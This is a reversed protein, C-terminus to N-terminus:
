KLTGLYSFLDSVQRDSLGDILGEPMLSRKSVTHEKVEAKPIAREDAGIQRLVLMDKNESALFGSLLTGDNLSVDHRYYGSELQANPTLINRLLSETGMAGAGSLDPGIATGQGQAQHCTMCTAQFLQKGAAADGPNAALARIREFKASLAKAADPTLLEPFDSTWEVAAGGVPHPGPVEGNVQLVLGPMAAGAPLRTRYGALIEAPTRAVGWIRYELFSGATGGPQNARGIDLSRMAATFAGASVGAPEGDLYLSVKGADDRTVACHTWKGAEMPRDAIVVDGAGSYLRLRADYFNIDPGGGRTGLLGDRNDIGPEFKVWSEVTFPGDLTFGGDLVADPKGPFRLAAMLIGDVSQLVKQFDPHDRGLVAALKEVASSDFGVFGGEAVAKAFAAASEKNSVMGNVAFQRMAGPLSPWRKAVEPLAAPGGSAAYGLLAERAVGADAHDLLPLCMAPDTAQIENLTRLLVALEAPSGEKSARARLLPGLEKLRFRRALGLALPLKEPSEHVMAETTRGVAERLAENSAAVPDLKLLSRLLGERVSPRELQKGFAKAVAAQSLQSGLLAIEDGDLPRTISPLLKVLAVAGDQPPSALACIRRAEESDMARNAFATWTALPHAELARRVLYRLFSAEYAERSDGEIPAPALSAIASVMATTPEKHYLLANALACSVGFDSGAEKAQFVMRLFLNGGLLRADAAAEIAERRLDVNKDGALRLLLDRNLARMERVAWLAGLRKPLPQSEDSAIEGLLPVMDPEARDGIEEWVMRAVRTNPAGLRDLLEAGTLKTLDESAVPQHGKPKVRWIRGRTKDREPHNRPVENHSIIKNYWDAIYLCGDPGFQISVPRFWEDKSVLFDEQKKYSRRGKDDMTLTVIQIRNTIPNAIYFVREGPWKAAFASDADDALVLGSLGTGGMPQGPTSAPVQPAYPKLKEPSGTPYHGGDIFESVPHGIDNAEQLYERGDKAIAFGWINNPGATLLGFDWGDLKARALKCQNFVVEKEGSAFDSGDPRVVKSYNFLGQALYFWGGPTREFQHPFLHSDQIGFGKLVVEYDEARGDKDLDMYRRIETGHQVLVSGKWPLIGLPIALKDVFVRPTQPGAKWPEDFILVKDKGGRAYLAEAAAQNENADVPYELATMTWMRGAHDWAMTIPKGVGEKESAVLEVDFGDPVKFSAMESEPSRASADEWSPIGPTAPLEEITIEKFQALLKGGGHTQLGILGEQPIAAEAETYDLAPVGNIWSRIRRGECRIVYDNWDWDKAAAKIAGADVPEGIVKNRRSEDYMKGWWDVGADVQYGSMESNGAVRISRIQVGSNMFGEGKTLRVKLRLEFNAYRKKTALFTNYPVQEELSGGTIMGDQVKWWKEEGGRVEWGDLSKGDFLSVPPAPLPKNSYDGWPVIEGKAARDLHYQLAEPTWGPNEKEQGALLAKADPTRSERGGAPIEAGASWLIGNLVMKRADDNAWSFLFHGGTFGFARGGKPRPFAWADWHPADSDMAARAADNGRYPSLGKEVLDKSPHIRFLPKIEGHEHDCPRLLFYCEDYLSFPKVGRMVPHDAHESSKAQWFNSISYYAEFDAGMLERWKIRRLDNKQDKSAPDAAQIGTAWHLAVLGKGANMFAEVEDLKDNAPHQDWGDAYIVVADAKELAEPSPWQRIVEAEVEGGEKLADCLVRSGAGHRHQGWAHTDHGALFLIRKPAASLPSCAFALLLIGQIRINMAPFLSFRSLTSNRRSIAVPSSLNM